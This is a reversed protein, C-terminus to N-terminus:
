IHNFVSSYGGGRAHTSKVTHFSYFHTFVVCVCLLNPILMFDAGIRHLSFCYCTEYVCKRSFFFRHRYFYCVNCSSTPKLPERPFHVCVCVLSLLSVANTIYDHLWRQESSVITCIFSRIVFLVRTATNIHWAFCHCHVNECNRWGNQQNIYRYCLPSIPHELTHFQRHALPCFFITWNM